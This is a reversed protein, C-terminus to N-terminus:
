VNTDGLIINHLAELQGESDWRLVIQSAPTGLFGNTHSYNGVGIFSPCSIHLTEGFYRVDLQHLHGQLQVNIDVGFVQKATEKIKLTRSLSIAERHIDGHHALLHRDNGLPIVNYGNTSIIVSITPDSSLSAKM